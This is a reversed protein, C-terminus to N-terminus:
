MSFCDKMFGHLNFEMPVTISKRNPHYEMPAMFWAEEMSAINLFQVFNSYTNNKMYCTSYKSVTVPLDEM